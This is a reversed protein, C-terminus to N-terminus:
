MKATASMMGMGRNPNFRSSYFISPHVYQIDGTKEDVYYPAGAQENWQLDKVYPPIQNINMITRPPLQGGAPMGTINKGGQNYYQPIQGGVNTNEGSVLSRAMAFRRAEQNAQELQQPTPKKNNRGGDDDMGYKKGISSLASDFIM